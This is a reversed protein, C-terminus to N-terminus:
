PPYVPSLHIQISPRPRKKIFPNFHTDNWFLLKDMSKDEYIFVFLSYDHKEKIEAPDYSLSFYHPSSKIPKYIESLKKPDVDAITSDALTIKIHATDSLLSQDFYVKGHLTPVFPKIIDRVLDCSVCVFCISLLFFYFINLRFNIM